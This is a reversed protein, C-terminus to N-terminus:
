DGYYKEWCCNETPAYYKKCCARFYKINDFDNDDFYDDTIEGTMCGADEPYPRHTSCEGDSLEYKCLGSYCM